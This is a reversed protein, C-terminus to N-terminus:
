SLMGLNSVIRVLDGQRQLGLKNFIAKLHTRVTLVKIGLRGSADAPSLGAGVLAAVAAEAPTLGLARLGASCSTAERRDLDFVLLLVLAPDSALDDVIGEHTLSAIQLLLPRMGSPRPLVMCALDVLEGAFAKSLLVELRDHDLNSALNLRRQSITMGDGVLDQAGANMAVVHGQLLAKGNSESRGDCRLIMGACNLRNLLAILDSAPAATRVTFAPLEDAMTEPFTLTSGYESM